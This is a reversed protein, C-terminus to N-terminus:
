LRALCRDILDAAVAEVQRQWLPDDPYFAARMAAKAEALDGGHHHIRNDTILRRLIQIAPLTGFECTLVDVRDGLLNM